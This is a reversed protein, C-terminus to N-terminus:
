DKFNPFNCFQDKILDCVLRVRTKYYGDLVLGWAWLFGLGGCSGAWEWKALLIGPDFVGTLVKKGGLLTACFWPTNDGGCVEGRM